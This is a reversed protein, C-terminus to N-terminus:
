PLFPTISSLCFPERNEPIGGSGREWVTVSSLRHVPLGGSVTTPGCEEAPICFFNSFVNLVLDILSLIETALENTGSGGGIDDGSHDCDNRM